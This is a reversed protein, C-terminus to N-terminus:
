PTATTRTSSRVPKWSMATWSLKGCRVSWFDYDKNYITGLAEAEVQARERAAKEAARAVAADYVIM